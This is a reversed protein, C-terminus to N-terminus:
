ISRERDRWQTARLERKLIKGVANRPLEEVVEIQKPRKYNALSKACWELLAAPTFTVNPRLECFAAVAEGFENDPVGIVACDAIAPHEKLVAEIEAPYINVGGSIILDKARDCIYLFGDDDLYGVDGTFFYGLEDLQDSGLTPGHLYSNIAVPTKIWIEGHEGTPLSRGDGDRISISVHRFPRGCSNMKERQFEPSLSTALGVESSGYGERLCSGLNDLIWQKLPRDVPAAGVGLQKLSTLDYRKIEEGLAAIRRYMTPVGFWQTVRHDEIVRLTEQPDFRRLLVVMAGCKLADSVQTAGAAHHLPVTVLCVDGPALPRTSRVDALYERTIKSDDPRIAIGKPEGTTGSTFLILPPPKRSFFAPPPQGDQEAVISAYSQFGASSGDIAIAFKLNPLEVELALKPLDADDCILGAPRSDTMIRAVEKPTLRWNLALMQCELKALALSIVPWELRIQSRVAVIDGTRVGYNKLAAALRNARVNLEAYSLKKEAEIVATADPQSIAWYEPTEPAPRASPENM